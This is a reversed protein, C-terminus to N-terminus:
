FKTALYEKYKGNETKFYTYTYDVAMHTWNTYNNEILCLKIFKRSFDVVTYEFM